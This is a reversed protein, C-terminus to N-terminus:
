QAVPVIRPDPSLAYSLAVLFGAKTVKCELPFSLFYAFLHSFVYWATSPALSFFDAPFSLSHSIPLTTTKFLITLFPGISFPVHSCLQPLTLCVGLSSHEPCHSFFTHSARLHFSAQHTTRALGLLSALTVLPSGSLLALGEESNWYHEHSPHGM